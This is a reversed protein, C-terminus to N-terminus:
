LEGGRYITEYVDRGRWGFLKDYACRVYIETLSYCVKRVKAPVLGHQKYNAALVPVIRSTFHKFWAFHRDFYM